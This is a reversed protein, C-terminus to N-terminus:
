STPDFNLSAIGYALFHDADWFVSIIDVFNADDTLNPNAAGPFRVANVNGVDVDYTRYNTITRGGTGDQKVLVVFNGSTAPFYMSLNTIDGNDFTVLQKNGTRFDVITTTSDYTPEVLDFGVACNDFEVHGDAEITLDADTGTTTITLEGDDAVTFDAYQTASGDYDNHTLRLCDGSADNIELAKDPAITGIGIKGDTHIRMKEAVADTGNIKTYFAMMSTGTGDGGGAKLLLNGGNQNAVGPLASGAQISLDRGDTGASTVNIGLTANTANSFVLSGATLTALNVSADKFDITGGDANIEINGTADLEIDGGNANLAIAGDILFSCDASTGIDDKTQIELAGNAGCTFRAYDDTDFISYFTFNSSAANFRLTVVDSAYVEWASDTFVHRGGGSGGEGGFDLTHSHNTEADLIINDNATLIIDDEACIALNGNSVDLEQSTLSMYGVDIQSSATVIGDNDISIGEDGGDNSVYNGQLQLNKLLKHNPISGLSKLSIRSM